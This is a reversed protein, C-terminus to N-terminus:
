LVSFHGFCYVRHIGSTLQSCQVRLFRLRSRGLVLLLHSQLIQSLSIINFCTLLVIESERSSLLFAYFVMTLLPNYGWIGAYVDEIQDFPLLFAGLLIEIMKIGKRRWNIDRLHRHHQHDLYLLHQLLKTLRIVRFIHLFRMLKSSEDNLLLEM